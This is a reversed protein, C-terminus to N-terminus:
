KEVKVGNWFAVYGTIQKAAEKPQPYTWAAGDNVQDSVVVDYYNATDKWPCPSHQDTERFYETHISDPPFYHNSEVVVTADSEAM